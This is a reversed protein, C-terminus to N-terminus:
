AAVYDVIFQCSAAEVGELSSSYIRALSAVSVTRAECIDYATGDIVVYAVATFEDNYNDAPIDNIVANWRIYKGDEDANGNEDVKAVKESSWTPGYYNDDGITNGKAVRIGYTEVGGFDSALLALTGLRLKMNSVSNVKYEVGSAVTPNTSIDFPYTGNETASDYWIANNVFDRVVTHTQAEGKNKWKFTLENFDADLNAYWMKKENPVDECWSMDVTKTTGNKSNTGTVTPVGDDFGIPCEFVILKSYYSYSFNLEGKVSDFTKYYKTATITTDGSVEGTTDWTLVNYGSIEPINEEVTTGITATVKSEHGNVVYTLHCDTAAAEEWVAYLKVDAKVNGVSGSSQYTATTATSSTSWGLFNYGKRTPTYEPLTGEKGHEFYNKASKSTSTGDNNYLTYGWEKYTSWSGGGKDWTEETVTYMNGSSWKLDATQNWKNNWNNATASPNMRCFIINANQKNIVVRYVLDGNAVKTMSQWNESSGFSYIAFRANDSRWNANPKLYLVQGVTVDAAEVEKTVTPVSILGVSLAVILAKKFINM